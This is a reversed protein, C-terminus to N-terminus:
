TALFIGCDDFIMMVSAALVEAREAVIREVGLLLVRTVFIVNAAHVDSIESHVAGLENWLRLVTM